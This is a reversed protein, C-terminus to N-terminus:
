SGPIAVTKLAAAPAPLQEQKALSELGIASVDRRVLRGNEYYSWLDAIGDGNLDREEKIVVEGDQSSDYYIWLDARGSGNTDKEVKAIRGNEYSARYTIRGQGSEDREERVIKDKDYYFVVDPRGLGKSDVDRRILQGQNFYSWTDVRGDGKSAEEQRMIEGPKQPNYYIWLDPIGDGNVDRVEVNKFPPAATPVAVPKNIGALQSNDPARSPPPPQRPLNPQAPATAGSSETQTVPSASANPNGIQNELERQRALEQEIAAELQQDKQQETYIQQNLQGYHADATFLGAILGILLGGGAGYPGAISGGMAVGEMAKNWIHQMRQSGTVAPPQPPNPAGTTSNPYQASGPPYQAPVPECASIALLTFLLFLCYRRNM